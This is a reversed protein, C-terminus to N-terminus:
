VPPLVSEYLALVARATSEASFRESFAQAQAGLLRRLAENGALAVMDQAFTVDDTALLGTEMHQVMSRVGPSDWGLLPLGAAAAEIFALPHVESRSASVFFDAMGLWAPIQAYPLAGAFIARQALGYAHALTRYTTLDPGDGVLLLYLDRCVPAVLQYLELLRRVDKEGSMRGVYIAVVADAPIGLAARSVRAAARAPACFAELDVGNPIVTVDGTLGWTPLMAAVEEDPAILAACRRSFWAFYAQLAADAPGAPLFGAYTRTYLDYRTHSTFVLPINYRRGLRAGTLGSTFPHHAHLISAGRVAARVQANFAASGTYYGSRGLAVGPYRVVNPADGPQPPGPTLVTVENGLRALWKQLLVAHNVVGNVVPLFADLLLVIRLVRCGTRPKAATSKDQHNERM